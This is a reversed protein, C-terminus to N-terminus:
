ESDHIGALIQLPRVGQHEERLVLQHSHPVEEPESRQHHSPSLVASHNEGRLCARQIQDIRRILSLHVRTLNHHHVVRSDLGEAEHSM